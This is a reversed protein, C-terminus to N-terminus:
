SPVSFTLSRARRVLWQRAGGRGRWHVWKVAPLNVTILTGARAFGLRDHLALSPANNDRIYGLIQTAKEQEFLERLGVVFMKIFFGTAMADPAAAGNYSWFASPALAWAVIADRDEDFPAPGRHFWTKCVVKGGILGLYALDGRALRARVLEPPTDDITALSEVDREGGRRVILDRLARIEKPPTTLEVIVNRKISVHPDLHGANVLRQGLRVARESASVDKRLVERGAHQLKAWIETV